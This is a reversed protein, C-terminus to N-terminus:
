SQTSARHNPLVNKKWWASFQSFNEDRLPHYHHDNVPGVRRELERLALKQTPFEKRTGLVENKRIRRASGDPGIVDERWRGVWVQNRKGRLFVSGRQYRRRAMQEMEKQSPVPTNAAVSPINPIPLNDM